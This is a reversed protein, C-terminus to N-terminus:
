RAPYATVLFNFGDGAEEGSSWRGEAQVELRQQEGAVFTGALVRTFTFRTAQGLETAVAPCPSEGKWELLGGPGASLPLSTAQQGTAFPCLGSLVKGGDEERVHLLFSAELSTTGGMYITADGTWDGPPGPPPAPAEQEGCALLLAVVATVQRTNM